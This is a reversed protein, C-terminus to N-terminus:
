TVLLDGTLPPPEGAGGARALWRTDANERRWVVGDMFYHHISVVVFFAALFPTEGMADAAAGRRRIAFAGDLYGPAGHFLLWGLALATLALLGVRVAVPRGFAPPGEHAAAENRRMLWVFYLYQISHLAPVLYRVLPDVSSFISWAWVTVVFVVLPGAPLARGRRRREALLAWALAATSVALAAGTALELWRPHALARYVVGKEEFEGAPASPNAWAFAWGAYCHALLAVRERPAVPVGRRASLVALVGFGQKVYHWGVLLYMLQVMWGLAQASRAVLAGVAWAGLAAPVVAGAIWYRVTQAAGWARGSARARADKYFLLYTVAFHPDNVVYAGYFTLFGVAYESTDLGLVERLIWALPFLVLTAGGVLLLEVFPSPERRAESVLPLDEGDHRARV